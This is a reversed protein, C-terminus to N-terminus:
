FVGLSTAGVLVQAVVVLLTAAGAVVAVTAVLKGRRTPDLSCMRRGALGFGIALVPLLPMSWLWPLAGVAACALAVVSWPEVRAPPLQPAGASGRYGPPADTVMARWDDTEADDPRRPTTPLVEPAEHMAPASVPVPPWPVGDPPLLGAGPDPEDYPDLAM